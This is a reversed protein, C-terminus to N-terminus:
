ILIYVVESALSIKMSPKLHNDFIESLNQWNQLFKKCYVFQLIPFFPTTKPIEKIM